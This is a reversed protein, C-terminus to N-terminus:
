RRDEPVDPLQMAVRILAAALRLAQEKSLASSPIGCRGDGYIAIDPPREEKGYLPAEYEAIRAAIEPLEEKRVRAHRREDNPGHEFFWAFEATVDISLSPSVGEPSDYFTTSM